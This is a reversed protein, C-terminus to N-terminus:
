SLGASTTKVPDTCSCSHSERNCCPWASADGTSYNTQSRMTGKVSDWYGHWLSLVYDLESGMLTIPRSEQPDDTVNFILPPDHTLARGATRPEPSGICPEVGRTKYFLKYENFRMAAMNGDEPFFLIREDFPAQGDLLLTSLDVGDFMRDQPLSINALSLITPVYDLTSALVSTNTGSAIVSKWVAAGEWATSKLTAGGQGGNSARQWEGTFPGPSGVAECAVSGLNAPGNDASLLILTDELLGAVDLARVIAGVSADVEALTNGFVQARGERTSANAFMPDYALPTHTHAYAVYLFFPDTGFGQILEIARATYQGNLALPNYPQQVITEDCTKNQAAECDPGQTDYLPVAPSTARTGDVASCLAPCAPQSENRLWSPECGQPTSEICGMDGSYPLGYFTNFGRYTPHYGPQVGLHWKGIMHTDYGAEQLYNALTKEGTPLGYLSAPEFNGYVGTRAATRGTLLGARSPTCVSAAAHFDSFTLGQEALKYPTETVSNDNIGADGWGNDDLLFIVVNPRRHQNGAAQDTKEGAVRVVMLATVAAALVSKWCCCSWLRM